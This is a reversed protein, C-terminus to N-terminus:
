NEGGSSLYTYKYINHSNGCSLANSQHSAVAASVSAEQRILRCNSLFCSQVKKKERERNLDQQKGVVQEGAQGPGGELDKLVNILDVECVVLYSVM